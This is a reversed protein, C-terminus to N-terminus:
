RIMSFIRSLLSIRVASYEYSTGTFRTELLVYFGLMTKVNPIYALMHTNYFFFFEPFFFYKSSVTLYSSFVSLYFQILSVISNHLHITWRASVKLGAM